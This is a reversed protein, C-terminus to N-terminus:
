CLSACMCFTYKNESFKHFTRPPQIFLGNGMGMKSSFAVAYKNESFKHFTRPLQIFLGHGMGMKSSFAHM